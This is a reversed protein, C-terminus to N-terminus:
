SFRDFTFDSIQIFFLFILKYKRAMETKNRINENIKSNLDRTQELKSELQGLSTQAESEIARTEERYSEIFADLAALDSSKLDDRGGSLAEVRRELETLQSKQSKCVNGKNELAGM